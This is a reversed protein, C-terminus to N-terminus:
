NVSFRAHFPLAPVTSMQPIRRATTIRGMGVPAPAPAAPAKPSYAIAVIGFTLAVLGLLPTCRAM